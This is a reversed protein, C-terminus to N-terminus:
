RINKFIDKWYSPAVHCIVFTELKSRNFYIKNFGSAELSVLKKFKSFFPIFILDKQQYKPIEFFSSIFSRPM